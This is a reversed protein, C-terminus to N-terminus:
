PFLYEHLTQSPELYRLTPKVTLVGDTSWMIYDYRVIPLALANYIMQAAENYTVTKFPDFDTHFGEFLGLDNAKTYVANEWQEGTFSENTSSYGLLNMLMKACQIGSAPADPLFVGNGCGDTFGYRIAFQVYPLSWHDIADIPTQDLSFDEIPQYEKFSETRGSARLATMVKVLEARTMACDPQCDQKSFVNLECLTDVASLSKVDGNEASVTAAGAPLTTLLCVVTFIILMKAQIQKM